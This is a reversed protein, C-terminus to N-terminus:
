KKWSLGECKTSLAAKDQTSLAFAIGDNYFYMISEKESVHDLGLAHGLEHALVRQLRLASDYEYITITDNGQDYVGEEFSNRSQENIEDVIINTDTVVANHTTGYNSIQAILDNVTDIKTNIVMREEDLNQKDSQLQVIEESSPAKKRININNVRINYSDLKIAYDNQLSLLVEKQTTYATELETITDKITTLKEKQDNIQRSLRENQITTRQREDYIFSILIDGDRPVQKLLTSNPYAENWLASAEDLYTSVTSTAISFESDITDISFTKTISCPNITSQVLQQIKPFTFFIVVLFFFIAIVNKILRPVTDM